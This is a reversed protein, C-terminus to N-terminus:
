LDGTIGLKKELLSLTLLSGRSPIARLRPRHGPSGSVLCLQCQPDQFVPQLSWRVMSIELKGAEERCGQEAPAGAPFAGGQKGGAPIEEVRCPSGLMLGQKNRFSQHHSGAEAPDGGEM